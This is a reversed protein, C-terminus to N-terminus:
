IKFAAAKDYAALIRRFREEVAGRMHPHTFVHLDNHRIAAVVRAAV